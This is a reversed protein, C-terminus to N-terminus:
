GSPSPRKMEFIDTTRCYLEGGLRGIAKLESMQIDGNIYLEDKIHVRVVEGIIFSCRRPAEGFEIIQDMRYYMM